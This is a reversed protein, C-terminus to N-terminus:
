TVAFPNHFEFPPMCVVFIGVAFGVLLVCGGGRMGIKVEEVQFVDRRPVKSICEDGLVSWEVGCKGERLELDWNRHLLM